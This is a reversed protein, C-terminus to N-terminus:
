TQPHPNTPLFAPPPPTNTHRMTRAFPRRGAKSKTWSVLLGGTRANKKTREFLVVSQASIRVVRIIYNQTSRKGKLSRKTRARNVQTDMYFQFRRDLKM